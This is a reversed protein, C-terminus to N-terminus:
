GEALVRGNDRDELGDATATCAARGGGELGVM